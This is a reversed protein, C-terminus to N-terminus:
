EPTIKSTQKKINANVATEFEVFITNCPALKSIVNDLEPTSSANLSALRLQYCNKVDSNQQANNLFSLYEKEGESGTKQLHAPAADMMHKIDDSTVPRDLNMLKITTALREKLEIMERQIETYRMAVLTALAEKDTDMANVTFGTMLAFILLLKTNKM